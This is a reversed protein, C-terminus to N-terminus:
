IWTVAATPMSSLVKGASTQLSYINKVVAQVEYTYGKSTCILVIGYLGLRKEEVFKFLFKVSRTKEQWM